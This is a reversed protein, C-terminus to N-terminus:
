EKRLWTSQAEPAQLVRDQSWSIDKVLYAQGQGTVSNIGLPRSLLHHCGRTRLCWVQKRNPPGRLKRCSCSAERTCMPAQLATNRLGPHWAPGLANGQVSHTHSTCPAPVCVEVAVERCVCNRDVTRGGGKGQGERGWKYDRRASPRLSKWINNTWSKKRGTCNKM